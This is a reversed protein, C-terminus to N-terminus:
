PTVAVCTELHATREHLERGAAHVLVHDRALAAAVIWRQNDRAREPTGAIWPGWLKVGNASREGYPNARDAASGPPYGDM